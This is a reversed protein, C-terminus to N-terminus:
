SFPDIETPKPIPPPEPESESSRRKRDRKEGRAVGKADPTSDTVEAAPPAPADILGSGRLAGELESAFMAPDDLDRPLITTVHGRVSNPEHELSQFVWSGFLDVRVVAKTSDGVQLEGADGLLRATPSDVVEATVQVPRPLFLSRIAAAKSVSYRLGEIIHSHASPLPAPLTRYDSLRSALTDGDSEITGDRSITVPFSATRAWVPLSRVRALVTAAMAIALGQTLLLVAIMGLLWGVARGANFPRSMRIEFDVPLTVQKNSRGELIV